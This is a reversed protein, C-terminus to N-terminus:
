YLIIQQLTSDAFVFEIKGSYKFGLIAFMAERFARGAQKTFPYGRLGGQNMAAIVSGFPKDALLGQVTKRARSEPTFVSEDDFTIINM